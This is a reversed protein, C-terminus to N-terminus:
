RGVEALRPFRQTSSHPATEAPAAYTDPRDSSTTKSEFHSKEDKMVSMVARRANVGFILRSLWRHIVDILSRRRVREQLCNSRGDFVESDIYPMSVSLRALSSCYDVQAYTERPPEYSYQERLM